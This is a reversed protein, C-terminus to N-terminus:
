KVPMPERCNEICEKYSTLAKDVGEQFVVKEHMREYEKMLKEMKLEHNALCAGQCKPFASV